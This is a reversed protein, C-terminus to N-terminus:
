ELGTGTIAQVYYRQFPMVLLIPVIAAIMSGALLENWVTGYQGVALSIEVQIVRLEQRPAVLLPWFFSNWQSIFMLLGAAVLVPKSIPLVISLLVRLWTAGDVRAADILEQPIEAFFQRFLFIVLSNAFGPVLLGQWTNIWGINEILIFRPIATLDIPVLFTLMVITMFLANKGRFEFRGFAFGALANAAGGVFVTVFALFFTNGVARGFGRAFLNDYAELTFDVPLLARWSFPYAYEFVKHNPTFSAALAWMLPIVVILVGIILMFYVLAPQLYARLPKRNRRAQGIM